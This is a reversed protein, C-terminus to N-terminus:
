NFLYELDQDGNIRNIKDLAWGETIDEVNKYITVYPTTTHSIALYIGGFSFCCGQGNATPLTAPDTLKVFSSGHIKYVTVFPSSEHSVSLYKNDYSFKCGKGISAPLIAPDTLKIFTDGFQEYITIFPTISHVISLFKNNFSFSCNNGTGTPLAVPDTLKVFTDENRKYITVYPSSDHAISLYTDDYSFACGNGNSAPLAAPNTLKTFVDGSRKYITVYPSSDHAIALYIGNHSFVCGNGTNAPLAAPNALKTFVDGSRKYITVYPSAPHVVSLYTGDFSFACGNGGFTPLAAPDSLKVFTDTGSTRKYITIYPSNTHAVALYIKDRSFSCGNGTGTPLSAPNTLKLGPEIRSVSNGKYVLSLTSGALTKLLGSTGKTTFFKQMYSIGNQADSQTIQCQDDTYIEIKNGEILSSTPLILNDLEGSARYRKIELTQNASIEEWTGPTGILANVEAQTYTESKGYVNLNTRSTPDDALDSLNLTPDLSGNLSLIKRWDAFETTPDNGVNPSPDTGTLALYVNGAVLVISINAYYNETTIWEPIGSQFIYKMQTTAMFHLSNFDQIRPPEIANNTLAYLGDLYQSLSQMTDLDKTTTPTGANDSGIQGFESTPGSEGFVKQLKRLIKAM